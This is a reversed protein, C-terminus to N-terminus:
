FGFDRRFQQWPTAPEPRHFLKWAALGLAAAVLITFVQVSRSRPLETRWWGYGRAVGERLTRLRDPMRALQARAHSAAPDLLSPAWGDLRERVRDLGVGGYPLTAAAARPVRFLRIPLAIGKLDFPGLEESPVESRTMSLYVAESFQIEGPGAQGEIRAAVNVAEGFVDGGDVRVDGVNVAARVAFRAVPEVGADTEALRDHVAMACLLANTPSRFTLLFADGISKVVQGDWARALPRVVDGFRRLMRENEERTQTATRPTFGAIDVFVIALNETRM